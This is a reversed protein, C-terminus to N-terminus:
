GPVSEVQLPVEAFTGGGPDLRFARLAGVRGQAVSAIIWLAGRDYASERDTASPEAAGDPHSHFHGVLAEDCGRLKRMWEFVLRPDVEFRRRPEPHVNTGVIARTVRWGADGGRGILLGCAEDPYAREAAEAIAAAAATDIVVAARSPTM